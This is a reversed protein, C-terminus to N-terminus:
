RLGQCFAIASLHTPVQRLSLKEVVHDDEAFTMEPAQESVVHGVVVGLPNM